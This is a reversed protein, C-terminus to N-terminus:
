GHAPRQAQMAPRQSLMRELRADKRTWIGNIWTQFRKRYEPDAEYDGSLMEQPIPLVDVFVSLRDQEGAAFSWLKHGKSPQYAITVDIIGAFQEGMANLAFSMGGAKPRLLHRYPSQDRVRKEESFRTGELFNIVTVPESRYLECARRTTELDQHRLEPNAQIASKSHRRMFPFDMAWCGIGIAPVYILEWKLFFRPFPVRGHFLDFLLVIDAWSQHNAILLYSKDPDLQTRFDVDWQVTHLLRFILRNNRVWNTGIWICYHSCARQLPKYPILKILAAPLQLLAAGLTTTILALSTLLCIITPPFIVSLM